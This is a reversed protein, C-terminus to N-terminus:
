KSEQWWVADVVEFDKADVSVKPNLNLSSGSAPRVLSDTQNSSHNARPNQPFQLRRTNSPNGLKLLLGMQAALAAFAAVVLIGALFIILAIVILVPGRLLQFMYTM